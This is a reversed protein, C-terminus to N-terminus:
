MILRGSGSRLVEPVRQRRCITKNHLLRQHEEIFQELVTLFAGLQHVKMSNHLFRLLATTSHALLIVM